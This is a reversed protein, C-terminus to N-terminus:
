FMDKKPADKGKAAKPKDGDLPMLRQIENDKEGAKAGQEIMKVGVHALCRKGILEDTDTDTSVGFATFAAKLMPFARESLSIIRWFRRKKYRDADEPIQFVWTWYPGAAGTMPQGNKETQVELLEVVYDGEEILSYGDEAEAASKAVDSPLKAM